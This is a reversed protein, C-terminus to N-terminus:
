SALAQQQRSSLEAARAPRTRWCALVIAAIPVAFALMPALIVGLFAAGALGLLGAFMLRLRLPGRLRPTSWWAIAGGLMVAGLAFGGGLSGDAGSAYAGAVAGFWLAVLAVPGFTHRSAIASRAALRVAGAALMPVASLLALTIGRGMALTSDVTAADPPTSWLSGTFAYAVGITSGVASLISWWRTARLASNSLPTRGRVVAAAPPLRERTALTSPGRLAVAIAAIVAAVLGSSSPTLIALAIGISLLAGLPISVAISVARRMSYRTFLADLILACAVAGLVLGVLVFSSWLTAFPPPVGGEDATTFGLSWSAVALAALALAPGGLGLVALARGETVIGRDRALSVIAFLTFAPAVGTTLAFVVWGAGISVLLDLGWVSMIGAFAATALALLSSVVAARTTLRSGTGDRAARLREGTTPRVRGHVEADELLLGLMVDGNAHRWAKPYWRLLKEYRREDPRTM